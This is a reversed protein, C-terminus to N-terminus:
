PQPKYETIEITKPRVVQGSKLGSRDSVVILDDKSIGSTIEADNATQIGLTVPREEIKNGTGVVYVSAKDGNRNLAQIPVAMADDKRELSLTAEAYLGPVLTGDANPVDVETHMTRTDAVVDVSFRTVKGAFTRGLSGVIVNVPDGLHIYRVYSEPVPIVLRFKDDESLQVLPMAQTSSNTGAQLLTGLNAYRKTVVGAFPATIKSYDYLVRDHERKVQTVALESQSAELASKSVDVQSEAAVDKGQADDLEQQAILGQKTEAVGRLREYQLHLIKHQAEVRQLEHEARTVEDKSHKIAADDQEVQLELEPIELVALIQNAKVRSGYDVNLQRVYGAEKAYVDIEQFPVLEASVTLQRGLPKRAVKIVGVTVADTATGPNDAIANASSSATDGSSAKGSSACSVLASTMAAVSFALFVRKARSTMRNTKESNPMISWKVQVLKGVTFPSNITGYVLSSTNKLSHLLLARQKLVKQTLTLLMSAVAVRGPCRRVSYLM